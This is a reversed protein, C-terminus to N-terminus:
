QESSDALYNNIAQSLRLLQEKTLHCDVFITSDPACRVAGGPLAALCLTAFYGDPTASSGLIIISDPHIKFSM